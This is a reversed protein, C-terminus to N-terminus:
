LFYPHSLYVAAATHRFPPLISILCTLLNCADIDAWHTTVSFSKSSIYLKMWAHSIIDYKFEEQFKSQIDLTIKTKYLICGFHCFFPIWIIIEKGQLLMFWCYIFIIEFTLFFEGHLQYGSPSFSQFWVCSYYKM